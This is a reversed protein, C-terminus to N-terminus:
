AVGAYNIPPIQGSAEAKNAEDRIELFGSRLTSLLEASHKWAEPDNSYTRQMIFTCIRLVNQALEGSDLALGDVILMVKTVADRRISNTDLDQGALLANAGTELSESAHNYIHILMDVRTWSQAQSTKYRQRPDM